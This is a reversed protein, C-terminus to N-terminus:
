VEKGQCTRNNDTKCVSPPHNMPCYTVTPKMLKTLFSIRTLHGYDKASMRCGIMGRGGKGLGARRGVQGEEEM